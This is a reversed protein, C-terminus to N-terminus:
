PITESEGNINRKLGYEKFTCNIHSEAIYDVNNKGEIHNEVKAGGNWVFECSLFDGLWFEDCDV